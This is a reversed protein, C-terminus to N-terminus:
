KKIWVNHETDKQWERGVVKWAQENAIQHLSVHAPRQSDQHDKYASNYAKIYLNQAEEPLAERINEPLEERSKYLMNQGRIKKDM